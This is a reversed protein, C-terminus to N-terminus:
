TMNTSDLLIIRPIYGLGGLQLILAKQMKEKTCFLSHHLRCRINEQASFYMEAIVTLVILEEPGSSWLEKVVQWCLTYHQLYSSVTERADLAGVNLVFKNHVQLLTPSVYRNNIGTNRLSPEESGRPEM